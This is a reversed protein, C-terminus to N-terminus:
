KVGLAQSGQPSLASGLTAGNAPDLDRIERGKDYKEIREGTPGLVGALGRLGLRVTSRSASGTNEPSFSSM